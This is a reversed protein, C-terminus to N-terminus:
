GSGNQYKTMRREVMKEISEFPYGLKFHKQGNPSNLMATPLFNLPHHIRHCRLTDNVCTPPHLTRRLRAQLFNRPVEDLSDALSSLPVLGMTRTTRRYSDVLDRNSISSISQRVSVGGTDVVRGSWVGEALSGQYRKVQRLMSSRNTM